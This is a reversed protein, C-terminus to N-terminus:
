QQKNKIKGDRWNKGGQCDEIIPSAVYLLLPWSRLGTEASISAQKNNGLNLNNQWSIRSTHRHTDTVNFPLFTLVHARHRCQHHDIKELASLILHLPTNKGRKKRWVVSCHKDDESVLFPLHFTPLQRCIGWLLLPLFFKKRFLGSMHLIHLYFTLRTKTNRNKNKQKGASLLCMVVVHSTTLGRKSWPANCWQLKLLNFNIQTPKNNHELFTTSPIEGILKFGDLSKKNIMKLSCQGRVAGFLTLM